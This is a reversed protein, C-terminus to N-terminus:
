EEVVRAFVRFGTEPNPGRYARVAGIMAENPFSNWSGGKSLHPEAIM